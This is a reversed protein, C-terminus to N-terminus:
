LWSLRHAQRYLPAVRALRSRGLASRHPDLARSHRRSARGRDRLRLRAARSDGGDAPIEFLRFRSHDARQLRSFVAGDRSRFSLQGAFELDGETTGARGSNASPIRAQHGLAFARRHNEHTLLESIPVNFAITPLFCAAQAKPPSAATKWCMVIILSAFCRARTRSPSSSPPAAPMSGNSLTLSSTSRRPRSALRRSM